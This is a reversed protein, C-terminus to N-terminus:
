SLMQVMSDVISYKQPETYKRQRSNEHVTRVKIQIIKGSLQRISLRNVREKIDLVKLLETTLKSHRSIIPKKGKGPKSELPKSNYWADILQGHYSGFSTIRFTIKVKAGWNRQLTEHSVYVAEYLGEPIYILNGWDIILDDSM